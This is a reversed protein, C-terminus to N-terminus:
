PCHAQMSLAEDLICALAHMNLGSTEGEQLKSPITWFMHQADLPIGSPQIWM